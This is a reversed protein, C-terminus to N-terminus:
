LNFNLKKNFKLGCLSNLQTRLANLMTTNVIINYDDRQIM